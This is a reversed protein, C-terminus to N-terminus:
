AVEIVVWRGSGGSDGGGSCDGLGGLGRDGGEGGSNGVSGDVSGCTPPTIIAGAGRFHIVYLQM